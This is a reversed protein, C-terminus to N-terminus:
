PTVDIRVLVHSVYREFAKGYPDVPYKQVCEALWDARVFQAIVALQDCHVVQFDFEDLEQLRCESNRGPFARGRDVLAM